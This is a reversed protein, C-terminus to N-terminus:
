SDCMWSLGVLPGPPDLAAQTTGKFERRHYKGRAISRHAPLSVARHPADDDLLGGPDAHNRMNVFTETQNHETQPQKSNSIHEILERNGYIINNTTPYPKPACCFRQSHDHVLSPVPSIPSAMRQQLVDCILFYLADRWGKRRSFFVNGDNEM